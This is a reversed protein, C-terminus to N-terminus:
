FWRKISVEKIQASIRKWICPYKEKLTKADLKVCESGVKIKDEPCRGEAAEFALKSREASGITNWIQSVNTCKRKGLGTKRPLHNGVLGHPRNGNNGNSHM